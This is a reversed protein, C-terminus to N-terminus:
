MIEKLLLYPKIAKLDTNLNFYEYFITLDTSLMWGNPVTSM